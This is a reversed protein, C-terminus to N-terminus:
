MFRKFVRAGLIKQLQYLRVDKFAKVLSSKDIKIPKESIYINLAEVERVIRQITTENPIRTKIM